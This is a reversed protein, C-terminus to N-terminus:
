TKEVFLTDDAFLAILMHLLCGKIDNIFISFLTAALKSGQPVGINVSEQGSTHENYKTCQTRNELYSVFWRYEKGKIGYKWLKMLLRNRDITEFARKLDLFVAIIINGDEM